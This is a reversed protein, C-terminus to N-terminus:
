AFIKLSSTNLRIYLVAFYNLSYKTEGEGQVQGDQHLLEQLDRGGGGGVAQHQPRPRPGACVCVRLVM